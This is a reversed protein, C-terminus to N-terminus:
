RRTLGTADVSTPVALPGYQIVEQGFPGQGSVSSCTFSVDRADDVLVAAVRTPGIVTRPPLQKISNTGELAM